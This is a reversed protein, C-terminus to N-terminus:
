MESIIKRKHNEGWDALVMIVEHLSQSYNTTIYEVLIPMTEIYVKRTVFGNEELDKLEKSLVRASIGEVKRQLENFRMNGGDQLAIIVKLKWKGGIVYLADDINALRKNCDIKSIKGQNEKM